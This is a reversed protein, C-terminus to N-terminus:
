NEPYFVGIKMTVATLVESRTSYVSPRPFTQSNPSSKTSSFTLVFSFLLLAYSSSTFVHARTYLLVYYPRPITIYIFFFLHSFDRCTCFQSTLLATTSSCFIFLFL